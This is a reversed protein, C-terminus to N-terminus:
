QYDRIHYTVKPETKLDFQPTDDPDEPPPPDPVRFHMSRILMRKADGQTVVLGDNTVRLEVVQFGDPSTLRIVDAALVFPPAKVVEAKPQQNMGPIVANPDFPPPPAIRPLPASQGPPIVQPEAAILHNRTTLCGVLIPSAVFAAVALLFVPLTFFYRLWSSAIIRPM